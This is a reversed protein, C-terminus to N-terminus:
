ASSTCAGETPAAGNTNFSSGCGCTSEANPNRVTFGRGMMSDIFDVQAGALMHVSSADLYVAVGQSETIIDTPEAQRALGMGYQFGACGGGEVAVKLAGHAEGKSALIERFARAARPTLSVIEQPPAPPAVATPLAIRDPGRTAQGGVPLSIRDRM